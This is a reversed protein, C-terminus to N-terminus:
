LTKSCWTNARASTVCTDPRTRRKALRRDSMTRAPKVVAISTANTAGRSPKPRIQAARIRWKRGSTGPKVFRHRDGIQQSCCVLVNGDALKKELSLEVAVWRRPRTLHSPYGSGLAY